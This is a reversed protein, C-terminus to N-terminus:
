LAIGTAGRYRVRVRSEVLAIKASRPRQRYEGAPVPIGRFTAADESSIELM